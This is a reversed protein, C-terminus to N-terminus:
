DAFKKDTGKLVPLTTKVSDAIEICYLRTELALVLCPARGPLADLVVMMDM